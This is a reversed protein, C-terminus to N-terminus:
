TSFIRQNPTDESYLMLCIGTPQVLAFIVEIAQRTFECVFICATPDYLIKKEVLWSSFFYFFASDSGCHKLNGDNWFYQIVRSM